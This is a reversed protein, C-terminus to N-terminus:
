REDWQAKAEEEGGAALDVPAEAISTSPSAQDNGTIPSSLCTAPASTSACSDIKVQGTENDDDFSIIHTPIKKRKREPNTADTLFFFFIQILSMQMLHFFIPKMTVCHLIWKSLTLPIIPESQTARFKTSNKDFKDLEENDVRIAFLITGLGTAHFFFVFFIIIMKM